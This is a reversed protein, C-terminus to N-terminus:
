LSRLPLPRETAETVETAFYRGRDGAFACSNFVIPIVGACTTDGERSACPDAPALTQGWRVRPSACALVAGSLTLPQDPSTRIEGTVSLPVVFTVFVVFGAGPARGYAATASGKGIKRSCSAPGRHTRHASPRPAKLVRGELTESGPSSAPPSRSASRRGPGTSESNFTSHVRPRKTDSPKEAPAPGPWVGALSRFVAEHDEHDEHHIKTTFLAAM